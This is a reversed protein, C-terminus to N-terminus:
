RIQTQTYSRSIGKFLKAPLRVQAAEKRTSSDKAHCRGQNSTFAVKCSFNKIDFTFGITRDIRIIAASMYWAQYLRDRALASAPGDRKSIVTLGAM